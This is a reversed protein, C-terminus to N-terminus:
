SRAPYSVKGGPDIAIIGRTVLDEALEAVDAESLQNGFSASIHHLLRDKRKPHPGASSMLRAVLKEM